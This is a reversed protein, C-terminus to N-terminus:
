STERYKEASNKTDYLERMYERAAQEGAEKELNDM